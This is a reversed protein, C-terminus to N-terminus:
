ARNALVCPPWKEEGRRRDGGSLQVNEALPPFDAADPRKGGKRLPSVPPHKSHRQKTGPEADVRNLIARPLHIMLTLMMPPPPSTPDHAANARWHPPITLPISRISTLGSKHLPWASSKSCPADSTASWRM